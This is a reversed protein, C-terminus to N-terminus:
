NFVNDFCDNLNFDSDKSEEIVYKKNQEKLDKIDNKMEGIKRRVLIYSVNFKRFKLQMYSLAHLWLSRNM